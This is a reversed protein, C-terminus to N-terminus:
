EKNRLYTQALKTLFKLFFVCKCLVKLFSIFQHYFRHAIARQFLNTKKKLEMGHDSNHYRTELLISKKRFKVTCNFLIVPELQIMFAWKTIWRSMNNKQAKLEIDRDSTINKSQTFYRQRFPVYIKWVASDIEDRFCDDFNPNKFTLHIGWKCLLWHFCKFRRNPKYLKTLITWNRTSETWVHNKVHSFAGSCGKDNILINEWLITWMCTTSLKSFQKQLKTYPMAIFLMAVHVDLPLENKERM